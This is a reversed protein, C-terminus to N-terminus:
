IPIPRGPAHGSREISSSTQIFCAESLIYPAAKEGRPNGHHGGSRRITELLSDLNWVGLAM